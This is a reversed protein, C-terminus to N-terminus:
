EQLEESIASLYKQNIGIHHLEKSMDSTRQILAALLESEGCNSDVKDQM